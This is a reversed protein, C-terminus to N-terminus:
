EQWIDYKNSPDPNEYGMLAKNNNKETRVICFNMWAPRTTTNYRDADAYNTGPYGRTVSKNLRKYDFYTIGEGWLEVRKQLFIEDIVGQTDNAACTYTAYRYERMFDELLNKGDAANLHAAAEAEIFYMEEIRMLPLATAAAVTYEEMDGQAPRFKLSAYDPLGAGWEADIYSTKGYLPHGEPAKWSLKRFDADDIMDYVKKSIEPMPGAAAYGFTAENSMWSVWNVIGTKVVDDEASMRSGWMWSSTELTNFGSTTNLWQEKTVPSHGGMAIARRAYERANAYEGVWMYLRAKLGYTVALNPLTKAPRAFTELYQEAKDLDSLIFEYMAQRTLRPNNRADEETTTERVVPVTLNRVNNGAANIPDTGDNELFEYMRAFDMYQFARFAYAVGLYGLQVEPANEPDVSVILNNSTQIFQSYYNWIFQTVAWDEGIDRNRMWSDYHVSYASSAIPMDETMLDRIHMISGYGWDYHRETGTTRNLVNFKNVFAPMAWLLAETAKASSGLQEATVTNTPITEEICGTFLISSISCIGIFFIIIKKM